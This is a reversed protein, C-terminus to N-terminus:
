LLFVKLTKKLIESKALDKPPFKDPYGKGSCINLKTDNSTTRIIHSAITQRAPRPKKMNKAADNLDPLWKIKSIKEKNSPKTPDLQCKEFLDKMKSLTKPSPLFIWSSRSRCNSSLTMNLYPLEVM